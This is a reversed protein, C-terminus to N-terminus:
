RWKESKVCKWCSIRLSAFVRLRLLKKNQFYLCKPVLVIKEIWTIRPLIDLCVCLSVSITNPFTKRMNWIILIPFFSQFKKCPSLVETASCIVCIKQRDFEWYHSYAPKLYRDYSLFLLQENSKLRELM